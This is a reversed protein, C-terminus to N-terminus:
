DLSWPKTEILTLDQRGAAYDIRTGLIGFYKGDLTPDKIRDLPGISNSLTLNQKITNTSYQNAYAKIKQEEFKNPANGLGDKVVTNILQGDLGVNSYSHMGEGAYTTVKMTIDSLTNVAGSNIINRYVVDSNPYNESDKTTFGVKLDKIWCYNNMGDFYDSTRIVQQKSPMHVKFVIDQNWDMGDELPIKFGKAGAWDTWSVNNLVPHEKNWWSTFDVDDKDTKDTGLNVVFSSDTTTWGNSSWYKNGIKLTFILCPTITRIYSVKSFLGLVGGYKSNESTWDPNIYEINYREFIASADIYLYAKDNIIMPNTYGEKLEFVPYFYNKIESDTLPNVSIGGTPTIEWDGNPHQRDPKDCQHIMLYRDFNINAETEYNYNTTDMPKDFTALDVITAGVYKQTDDSNESISYTKSDGGITYYGAYGFSYSYRPDWEANARLTITKASTSSGARGLTFSTYDTGEDSDPMTYEADWWNYQLEAYAFITKQSSGENTFTATYTYYGASNDYNNSQDETVNSVVISPSPIEVSLNSKDRYISSYYKNDFKRMYYIHENEDKEEKTDRGKKNIYTLKGSGSKPKCKWFEGQRNTLYDDEFIDPIFEKIEYFSDKVEIKNYLTELSVDSQPGMILSERLPVIKMFQNTWGYNDRMFGENKFYQECYLSVNEDTSGLTTESTHAQMDFLMLYDRWQFATFGLYRCLEELVEKLTWPEDTDSTFFNKESISLRGMNIRTGGSDYNTGDVVITNIDTCRNGIQALIQKFNVIKKKSYELEYKYDSLTSLCDQAELTFTDNGCGDPMNLLNSTLFGTWMVEDEDDNVLVVKTGQPNESFVDFFKEDAVVSISARSLRLPEFPTSSTDYTVVFPSEGALYIEEFDNSTSDAIIKVSYKTCNPKAAFQGKLNRGM